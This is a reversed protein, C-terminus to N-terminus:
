EAQYKGKLPQGDPPIGEASLAMQTTCANNYLVVQAEGSAAFQLNLNGYQTRRYDTPEGDPPVPCRPHCFDECVSFGTLM